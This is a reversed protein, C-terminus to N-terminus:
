GHTEHWKEIIFEYHDIIIEIVKRLEKSKFGYNATITLEPVLVVKVEHGSKVVHVHEPLHDNTYIYFKYGNVELIKPM